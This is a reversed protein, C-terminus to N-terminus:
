RHVEASNQVCQRFSLVLSGDLEALIDPENKAIGFSVRGTLLRPHPDCVCVTASSMNGIIYM